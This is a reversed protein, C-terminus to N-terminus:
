VSIWLYKWLSLLSSPYKCILEERFQNLTSYHAFIRPIKDFDDVPPSQEPVILLPCENISKLTAIDKGLLRDIVSNPIPDHACMGM